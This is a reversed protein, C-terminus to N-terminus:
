LGEIFEELTLENEMIYTAAEVGVYRFHWPEYEISTIHEKGRPYRLIFGYQSCNEKLWIGAKTEGFEYDLTAHTNTVIDFALGLQHESAGPVTVKQSAAKYAETYSYGLGMYLNIKRQFLTTQLKYDRYPSCVILSVGDKQAAAMMSKLPEIVREDGKMSGSITALPIEYDDPIPHTKNVLLLNWANKDYASEKQNETSLSINENKLFDDLTFTDIDETSSLENTLDSTLIEDDEIWTVEINKVTDAKSVEVEDIVKVSSDNNDATSETLYTEYESANEPFTFSSSMLFFVLALCITIYKKGNSLFYKGIGYFMLVVVAIIYIFPSLLICKKSSRKAKNLVSDKFSEKLKLIGKASFFLYVGRCGLFM